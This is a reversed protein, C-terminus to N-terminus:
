DPFICPPLDGTPIDAVKRDDIQAAIQPDMGEVNQLFRDRHWRITQDFRSAFLDVPIGEREAVEQTFQLLAQRMAYEASLLDLHKRARTEDGARDNELEDVRQHLDSLETRLAAILSKEM